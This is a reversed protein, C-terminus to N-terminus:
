SLHLGTCHARHHAQKLLNSWIVWYPGKFKTHYNPIEDHIPTTKNDIKIHTQSHWNMFAGSTGPATRM